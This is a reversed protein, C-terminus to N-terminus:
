ICVVYRAAVGDLVNLLGSFTVNSGTNVPRTSSISSGEADDRNPFAADIDELLVISNAPVNSLALALRDDTMGRESLNLMCINYNLSGALAFIFSSKGSGPPGHLLYGRRYPIGRDIYWQSSDMWERVDALINHVVNDALIVSDLPRKMRPAGMPRWESGWNNYIMIKDEEYQAALTYSDKIINDFISINRGIATFEVKEWPKGSNLEVMQQERTRQVLLLKGQYFMFHQGPGPVFNYNNLGLNGGHSKM